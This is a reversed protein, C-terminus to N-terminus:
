GMPNAPDAGLIPLIFSFTSGKDVISEVWIKGQHAEIIKKCIMLGLGTAQEGSTPQANARVFPQFIKSVYEEKIGLGQDKVSLQIHHTDKQFAHIFVTTSANSYKIANNTLNSIVQIMKEPDAEICPLNPETQNILHIQKSEAYIKHLTICQTIIDYLNVERTELLLKESEIKAVDLLNNIISLAHNSSAKIDHIMSQEDDCLKDSTCMLFLECYNSIAGMPNRLDHAAMGLFQNKKENLANAKELSRYLKLNNFATACQNAMISLLNISDESISLVDEFYIFAEIKSDCKLPIILSNNCYIVPNDSEPCAQIKILMDNLNIPNRQSSYKGIGARIILQETDDKSALLGNISSIYGSAGLQCISAIQTLIGEFFLELPKIQYLEPAARLIKELGLRNQNIIMMDRYAKIGSRITTFLKDAVLDTKEKYDDIDYHEIVYREPAIGPQGTRIIIRILLNKMTERIFKVLDLGATDTEMVVDILALCIDTEKEFISRAEEGSLAHLFEIKKNFFTLGKLSIRTIEHVDKEDDVILVKWLNGQLTQKGLLANPKDPRSEVKGKKTLQSSTTNKKRILKM